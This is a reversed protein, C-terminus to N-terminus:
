QKSYSKHRSKEVRKVHCSKNEKIIAWMDPWQKQHPLPIPQNPVIGILASQNEQKELSSVIYESWLCVRVQQFLAYKFIRM